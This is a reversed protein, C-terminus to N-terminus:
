LACLEYLALPVPSEYKMCEQVCAHLAPAKLPDITRKGCKYDLKKAIKKLAKKARKETKVNIKMKGGVGNWSKPKGTEDSQLERRSSGETILAFVGDRIEPDLPRRALRRALAGGGPRGRRRCPRRPAAEDDGYRRASPLPHSALRPRVPDHAAAM